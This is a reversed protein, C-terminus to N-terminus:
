KIEKKTIFKQRKECDNLRMEYGVMFKKVTASRLLPPYYIAHLVWHNMDKAYHDGTPA